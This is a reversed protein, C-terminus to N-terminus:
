DITPHYKVFHLTIKPHTLVDLVYPFYDDQQINPVSFVNMTNM